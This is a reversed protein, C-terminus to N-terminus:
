SKGVLSLYQAWRRIVTPEDYHTSAAALMVTESTFDYLRTWIMPPVYLGIGASSLVHTQCSEGDMLDVRMGGHMCILLQETNPHAHGGREYPEAINYLYFLRQIEFPVDWGAEIATLFGRSDQHTPLEITRAEALSM